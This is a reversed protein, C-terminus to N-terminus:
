GVALVGDAMQIEIGEGTELFAASIKKDPDYSVARNIEIEEGDDFQVWFPAWEDAGRLFNFARKVPWSPDITRDTKSPAPQYSAKETGQPRRPIEPLALVELIMEVGIEAATRDAEVATIGEPYEIQRHAAIDGSDVEAEMFHLTIGIDKEGNRFQWFLPNPGRYAPLLSPHLNLCGHEPTKLWSKPLLRPFCVTIVLDPSFEQFAALAAKDKLSGVSLVPIEYKSAEAAINEQAPNSLVPLDSVSPRAPPLFVPGHQDAQPRPVVVGVVNAGAQFLRKLPIYSYVGLMGLYVIRYPKIM